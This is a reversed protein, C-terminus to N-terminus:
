ENQETWERWREQKSRRTAAKAAVDLRLLCIRGQQRLSNRLGVPRLLLERM